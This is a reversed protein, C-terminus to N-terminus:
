YRSTPCLRVNRHVFGGDDNGYACRLNGMNGPTVHIIAGLNKQSDVYNPAYSATILKKDHELEVGGMRVEHSRFIKRLNNKQLFEATIDPGFSFGLGRQSPGFGNSKQPDSWLLEMFLGDRPPQSFRDIKRINDLTLKTDSPLGGHMTLYNNNILTALIPLSEFSHSFMDIYPQLVQTQMM